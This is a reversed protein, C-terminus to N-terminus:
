PVYSAPCRAEGPEPFCLTIRDVDAASAGVRDVKVLALVHLTM